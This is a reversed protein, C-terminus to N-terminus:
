AWPRTTPRAIKRPRNGGGALEPEARRSRSQRRVEPLHTRSRPHAYESEKLASNARLEDASDWLHRSIDYMDVTPQERGM